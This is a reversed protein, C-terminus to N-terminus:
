IETRSKYNIRIRSPFTKETTEVLAIIHNLDTSFSIYKPVVRGIQQFVTELLGYICHSGEKIQFYVLHSFETPNTARFSLTFRNVSVNRDEVNVTKSSLMQKSARRHDHEALSLPSNALLGRITGPVFEGYVEVLYLGNALPDFISLEHSSQRNYSNIWQRAQGNSTSGEFVLVVKNRYFNAGLEDHAAKPIVVDLTSCISIETKDRTNGRREKFQHNNRHPFPSNPVRHRTNSREAMRPTAGSQGRYRRLTPGRQV